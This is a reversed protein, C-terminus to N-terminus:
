RERPRRDMAVAIVLLSLGIPRIFPRALDYLRPLPWRLESSLMYYTADPILVAAGVLAVAGAQPGRGRRAILAVAGAVLAAWPLARCITLEAWSM